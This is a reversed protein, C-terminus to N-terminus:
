VKKMPMQKQITHFFKKENKTGDAMIVKTWAPFCWPPTTPEWWCKSPITEWDSNSNKKVYCQVKNSASCAESVSLVERGNDSKVRKDVNEKGTEHNCDIGIAYVKDTSECTFKDGGQVPAKCYPDDGGWGGGEVTVTWKCSDSTYEAGDKKVTCKLNYTKAWAPYTCTKNDLSSINSWEFKTGNGCDIEIWDVQESATCSVDKSWGSKGINWWPIDLKKCLGNDIEHEAYDCSPNDKVWSDEDIVSNDPKQDNLYICAWNQKTSDLNEWLITWKIIIYWEVGPALTIWGYTDIEVWDVKNYSNNWPIIYIQSSVFKVNKPLFDKVSTITASATWKNGFKIKYVIEDWIKVVKKKIEKDWDLIYKKIWLKPAPVEEDDCKEDNPNDEPHVCAVNEYEKDPMKKAYTTLQIEIYEWKKLVWTTKRTLINWNEDPKTPITIWPNHLILSDSYWLISPLKDTIVPNKVDGDVATVKINWTVTDWVEKIEKSWILTKEIELAWDTPLPEDDCEEDKPNDEPAVCAVNYVSNTYESDIM